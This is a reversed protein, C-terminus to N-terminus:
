SDTLAEANPRPFVRRVLNRVTQMEDEEIVGWFSAALLYVPAFVLGSALLVFSGGVFNLVNPKTTSFLQSGFNEGAQRLYDHGNAYVIYTVLGALVSILATKASTKLLALHQLGLGLKYVVMSAAILKEIVIACVAATLMGALTFHEFGFYLVGVLCTLTLMRTVLFLKGLEKFSRVVPDLVLVSFPLLTLNIM